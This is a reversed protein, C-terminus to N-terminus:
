WVALAKNVDNSIADTGEEVFFRAAEWARKRGGNWLFEQNKPQWREHACIWLLYKM